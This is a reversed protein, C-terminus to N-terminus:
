SPRPSTPFPARTASTSAWTPIAPTWSSSCSPRSAACTRSPIDDLHRQRRGLHRHGAERDPGARVPGAQAARGAPGASWSKDRSAKDLDSAFLRVSGTRFQALDLAPHGRGPAHGQDAAASGRSRPASTSTPRVGQHFLDAELYIQGDTISIVNTPICASIDNGKTEIIPLGTLSGGSM